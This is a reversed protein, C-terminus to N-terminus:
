VLAVQVLPFGAAMVTTAPAVVMQVMVLLEAATGVVPSMVTTFFAMPPLPVNANWLLKPSVDRVVMPPAAMWVKEL